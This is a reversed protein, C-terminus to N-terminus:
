DIQEMENEELDISEDDSSVKIDDIDHKEDDDDDGDDSLGLSILRHIRSGFVTPEDLTFGSTLLATDYLLWILDKLMRDSTDKTNRAHMSKIINHDPNLEMTKRSGMSGMGSSERLAQAKMIREMNASWGYEGTVLCCPSSTFRKSIVVKEVKDGLTEKITKCLGEMHKKVDLFAKKEDETEDFELGEKSTNILKHGDYEKLQQVAYEDIPDVMFICEIDRDRLVELFPSGEISSKSEGCIYYISKQNEAMGEVYKKLSVTGDGSKTSQYRLLKSLKERNTADEHIGLKINKSFHKYFEAYKVEDESLENMLEICKKVLNKRIVRLIKNQQLTERSINLPLDESDVVGRIFSLYEPMLDECNDMIFVRRVYLKIANHKKKTTEFMDYPAKKPIFLAARFELQGEVKFHKVAQHEEWDNSLSKYFTAYEEVSVDAADRM